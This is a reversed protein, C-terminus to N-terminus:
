VGWAPYRGARPGPGGHDRQQCGHRRFSYKLRGARSAPPLPRYERDGSEIL